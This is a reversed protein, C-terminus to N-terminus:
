PQKETTTVMQGETWDHDRSEPIYIAGAEPGLREREIVAIGEAWFVMEFYGGPNHPHNDM